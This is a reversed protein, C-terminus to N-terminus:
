YDYEQEGWIVESWFPEGTTYDFEEYEVWKADPDQKAYKLASKRNKSSFIVDGGVMRVTYEYDLGEQRLIDKDREM